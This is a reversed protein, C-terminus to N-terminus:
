LGVERGALFFKPGLHKRTMALLWKVPARVLRRTEQLTLPQFGTLFEKPWRCAVDSSLLKPEGDSISLEVQDFRAGVLTEAPSKGEDKFAILDARGAESLTGEGDRLRLLDASLNSVMSYIREPDIGMGHRAYRIEDLLDGQATLASDSGLAIRRHNAVTRADLTKGLTFINSTPCWVLAAGSEELLSRGAEDLGVGHVIVTTSKLAELDRLAFIEQASELDTGEGLHIVFPVDKSAASSEAKPNKGFELSHSWAFRKVVRVPFDDDFIEPVYANHHCVTTVGALLNKLGGWWLRVAKPVALHERLPPEGPRYIDEAWKRYNSYPGKGLCPFLNFELHDHANILGPLILYGHLDITDNSIPTRRNANESQFSVIKKIRGDLIEIDARVAASAGTAVRGGVLWLPRAHLSTLGDQRTKAAATSGM